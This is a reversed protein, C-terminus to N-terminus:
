ILMIILMGSMIAHNYVHNELDGFQPIRHRKSILVFGNRFEIDLFRQFKETSLNVYNLFTSM